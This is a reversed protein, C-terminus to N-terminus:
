QKLLELLKTNGGTQALQLPSVGEDNPMNVAM